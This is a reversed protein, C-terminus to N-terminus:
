THKIKQSCSFSCAKKIERDELNNTIKPIWFVRQLGNVEIEIQTTEYYKAMVKKTYSEGKWFKRIAKKLFPKILCEHKGYTRGNLGNWKIKKETREWAQGREM